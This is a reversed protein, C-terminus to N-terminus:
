NWVSESVINKADEDVVWSRVLIFFILIGKYFVRISSQTFKSTPNQM